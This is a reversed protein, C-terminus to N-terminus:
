VETGASVLDTRACLRQAYASGRVHEVLVEVLSHPIQPLYSSAYITTHACVYLPILVCFFLVVLNHPIQPLYASVYLLIHVRIYYNSSVYIATCARVLLTQTPSLIPLTQPCVYLLILVCIYYYSSVCITTHPCIYYYSSLYLLILVCIYYYSSVYHQSSVYMTTHPCMCRTILVCKYCYM